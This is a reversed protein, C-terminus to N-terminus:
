KTSKKIRDMIAAVTAQLEKTSEARSQLRSAQEFEITLDALTQISAPQSLPTKIWGTFWIWGQRASGFSENPEGSYFLLQSLLSEAGFRNTARNDNLALIHYFVGKMALRRLMEAAPKETRALLYAAELVFRYPPLMFNNGSNSFIAEIEYILPNWPIPLKQEILVKIMNLLEQDSRFDRMEQAILGSIEEVNKTALSSAIPMFRQGLVEEAAKLLNFFTRASGYIVLQQGDPLHPLLELVPKANIVFQRLAPLSNDVEGEAARPVSNGVSTLLKSIQRQDSSRKIMVALAQGAHDSLPVWKEYRSATDILVLWASKVGHSDIAAIADLALVANSLNQPQDSNRWVHLNRVVVDNLIRNFGKITVLKALADRDPTLLSNLIESSIYSHAAETKPINFHIAALADNIDNGIVEPPYENPNSVASLIDIIKRNPRAAIVYLAQQELSIDDGWQCHITGVSNVFKTIDRPTSSEGYHTLDYLQSIREFQTESHFPFAARLQKLLYDARSLLVIPPVSFSVQFTKDVFSEAFDQAAEDASWFRRVAGVDFAAILWVSKAWPNQDFDFEFFTRMTTWLTMATDPKVRDLNDIAIVLRRESNRSAQAEVVSKFWKQFEVSSPDYSEVSESNNTVVNKNLLLPFLESTSSPRRFYALLGVAVCTTMELIYIGADDKISNGFGAIDEKLLLFLFACILVAVAGVAWRQKAKLRAYGSELYSSLKRVVSSAFLLAFVIFPLGAMVAAIDTKASSPSQEKSLVALMAIGAPAALLAFALLKADFALIPTSLETKTKKRLLLGQKISRIEDTQEDDWLFEILRELFTRRLPDGDHAWADFIFVDAADRLQDKLMRLISSKGSGWPGTLAITKGTSESRILNGIALAVRQHSGGFVDTSSPQDPLLNTKCTDTM